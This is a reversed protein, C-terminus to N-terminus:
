YNLFLWGGLIKREVLMAVFYLVLLWLIFLPFEPIVHTGVIEITKVDHVYTIYFFTYNEDEIIVPVVPNDGVMVKWSNEAWLVKKPIAVRSFGKSGYAGTVKFRVVPGEEPRFYFGSATSNSVVNVYYTEGNWTGVNFLTVPAALPYRDTNNADISYPVDGIGDADGDWDGYDSWYNGGFPYGGDWSNGYSDSVSLQQSNAVFNNHYLLNGWSGSLNFGVSNYAIYNGFIENGALSTDEGLHWVKIGCTNNLVRNLRVVNNKSLGSPRKPDEDSRLVIGNYSNGYVENGQVVTNSSYRVVIGDILNYSVFNNEIVSPACAYLFIGRWGNFSINNNAILNSGSRDGYVGDYSNFVIENDVVHVGEIHKNLIVGVYGNRITLNRLVVGNEAIVVAMWANGGDIITNLRNEGVISVSKNVVLNEYYVGPGVLITDGSSANNIAEQISDYREGGNVSVRLVRNISADDFSSAGRLLFFVLFTALLSFGFIKLRLKVECTSNM